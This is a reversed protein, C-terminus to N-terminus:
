LDGAIRPVVNYAQGAHTSAKLIANAELVFLKPRVLGNYIESVTIGTAAQTASLTQATMALEHVLKTIGGSTIFLRVVDNAAMTATPIVDIADLRAGSAGATYVTAMTGTGDRNTNAVSIAGVGTGVAGTSNKPTAAFAATTAM